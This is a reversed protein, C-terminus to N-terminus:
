FTLTGRVTVPVTLFRHDLPSSLTNWAFKVVLEVGIPGSGLGGGGEAFVRRGDGLSSSIRGVGGALFVHSGLGWGPSRDAVTVGIAADLARADTLAYESVPSPGDFAILIRPLGEYSGRLMLAPGSSMGVPYLTIGAGRQRRGFELVDIFTGGDRSVYDYAERQAPAVEAGALAALPYKEFHLPHTFLWDSSITVFHRRATNAAYTQASAPAVASCLLAVAVFITRSAV